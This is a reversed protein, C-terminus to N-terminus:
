SKGVGDVDVGRGCMVEIINKLMPCPGPSVIRNPSSRAVAPESLRWPKRKTQAPEKERRDSM